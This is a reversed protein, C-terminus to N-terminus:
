RRKRGRPKYPRTGPPRTTAAGKPTRASSGANGTSPQGKAGSNGGGGPLHSRFRQDASPADDAVDHDRERDRRNQALELNALEARRARSYWFWSMLGLALTAVGANLLAVVLESNGFLSTLGVLPGLLWAVRWFRQQRRAVGVALPALKRQDVARGRNVSRIIARRDGVELGAFQRQHEAKDPIKAVTAGMTWQNRGLIPTAGPAMGQSVAREGVGVEAV